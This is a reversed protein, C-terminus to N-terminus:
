TRPKLAARLEDASKTSDMGMQMVSLLEFATGYLGLVLNRKEAKSKGKLTKAAGKAFPNGRKDLEDILLTIREIQEDSVSTGLTM